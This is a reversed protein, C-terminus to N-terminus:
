NLSINMIYQCVFLAIKLDLPSAFEYKFGLMGQKRDISSARANISRDLEGFRLYESYQTSVNTPQSLSISKKSYAPTPGLPSSNFRIHKEQQTRLTAQM